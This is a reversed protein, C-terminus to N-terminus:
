RAVLITLTDDKGFYDPWSRSFDIRYNRVGLKFPPAAMATENGLEAGDPDSRGKAQKM